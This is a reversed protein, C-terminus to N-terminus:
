IEPTLNHGHASSQDYNGVMQRQCKSFFIVNFYGAIRDHYATITSPKRWLNHALVPGGSDTLLTTRGKKFAVLAQWESALAPSAFQSLAM